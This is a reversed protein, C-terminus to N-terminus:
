ARRRRAVSGIMGLGALLMAWTEPEPVAPATGYAFTISTISLESGWMVWGNGHFDFSTLDNSGMVDALSATKGGEYHIITNQFDFVGHGAVPFTDQVTKFLLALDFPAESSNGDSDVHSYPTSDYAEYGYSDWHGTLSNGVTYSINAIDGGDVTYFGGTKYTNPDDGLINFSYDHTVRGDSFAWTEMRHLGTEYLPESSYTGASLYLGYCYKSENCLTPNIAVGLGIDPVDGVSTDSYAWDGDANMNLNLTEASATGGLLVAAIGAASFVHKISM